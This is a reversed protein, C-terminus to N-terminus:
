KLDVNRTQHSSSCAPQDKNWEAPVFAGTLDQESKEPEINMRLTFWM